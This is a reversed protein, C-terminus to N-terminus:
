RRVTNKLTAQQILAVPGVARYARGGAVFREDVIDLGGLGHPKVQQSFVDLDFGHAPVVM